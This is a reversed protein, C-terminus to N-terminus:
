RRAIARADQGTGRRGPLVRTARLRGGPGALAEDYVGMTAAVMAAVDFNRVALARARGAL